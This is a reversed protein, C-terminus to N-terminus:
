NYTKVKERSEDEEKCLTCARRLLNDLVLLKLENERTSQLLFYQGTHM